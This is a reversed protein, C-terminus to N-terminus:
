GERVHIDYLVINELDGKGSMHIDYLVINELIVFIMINVLIPTNAQPCISHIDGFPICALWPM